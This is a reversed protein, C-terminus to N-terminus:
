TRAAPRTIVVLAQLVLFILLPMLWAIRLVRMLLQVSAPEGPAIQTRADADPMELEGLADAVRRRRDEDLPKVAAPDSRGVLVPVQHRDAQVTIAELHSLGQATLEARGRDFESTDIFFGVNEARVVEPSRRDLLAGVALLALLGLLTLMLLGCGIATMQTKFISRESTSEFHLEITRRRSLSRHAADLTDFVRLCEGWGGEDSEGAHLREFRELTWAGSTAADGAEVNAGEGGAENELKLRLTPADASLDLVATAQDGVATMRALPAASGPKLSWAVSPLGDAALGVTALAVGEGSQGSHLATVQKYNGGVTRLVAIDQLLIEDLRRLSVASPADSGLEREFQVHRVTGLEGSTVLRQLERVLPHAALDFYPALARHTDDHILSLAYVFEGGQVARPVVLMACGAEGMRRALHLLDPGIAGVIVADIGSRILLEEPHEFLRAAPFLSLVEGQVAVAGAACSLTHEPRAHLAQLLPVVAPDDGILAFNM